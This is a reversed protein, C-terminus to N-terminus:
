VREIRRQRIRQNRRERVQRHKHLIRYMTRESCYYIGKDLLDTHIQAPAKDMFPESNLVDLIVREQEDGFARPHVTPPHPVADMGASAQSRRRYVTARSVALAHCAARTGIRPAHQEVTQIM